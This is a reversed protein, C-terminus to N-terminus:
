FFFDVIKLIIQICELDRLPAGQTTFRRRHVYIFALIYLLEVQLASCSNNNNTAAPVAFNFCVRGPRGISGAFNGHISWFWCCRSHQSVASAAVENETSYLRMMWFKTETFMRISSPSSSSSSWDQSLCKPTHLITQETQNKLFIRNLKKKKKPQFNRNISKPETKTNFIVSGIIKVFHCRKPGANDCATFASPCWHLSHSLAPIWQIKDRIQCNIKLKNLNQLEDFAAM